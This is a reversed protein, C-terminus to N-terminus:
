KNIRNKLVCQKKNFTKRLAIILEYIAICILFIGFVIKLSAGDLLNSLFSAGVSTAIAPVILWLVIKFNVLRNHIHIIIAVLGTLVFVVLNVGQAMHQSVGLLVTLMPILLTGGGMGMGGVMGSCLGVLIYYYWM